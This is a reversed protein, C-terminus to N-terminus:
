INEYKTGLTFNRNAAEFLANGMRSNRGGM